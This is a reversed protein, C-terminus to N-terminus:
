CASPSATDLPSVVVLWWPVWGSVVSPSLPHTLLTPLTWLQTQRLIPNHCTGLISDARRLVASRIEHALVPARECPSACRAQGM